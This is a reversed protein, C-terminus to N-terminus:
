DGHQKREQKAKLKERERNLRERFKIEDPSQYDIPEYRIAPDKHSEVTLLIGGLYESAQRITLRKVQEPTWGYERSLLIFRSWWTL